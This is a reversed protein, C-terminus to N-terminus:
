ALNMGDSRQKLVFCVAAAGLILLTRVRLSGSIQAALRSPAAIARRRAPAKTRSITVVAM